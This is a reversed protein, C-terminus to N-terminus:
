GILERLIPVKKLPVIIAFSIFLTIVTILPVGIISNITNGNIAFGLYGRQLSELIMVHFLFIPLTNQSIVSLLKWLKSHSSKAPEPKTEKENVMKQSSPVQFTNMLLFLMVAALILTPSLYGQFFFMTTGGITAAIAYTGIATLAIGLSMFILLMSRRLRVTLLYAGLIFYGAYGTFEFVNRELYYTTLLSAVPLLSAGVFWVILLYKILNAGARVMVVRLIPTLLYLGFLLYLYWFHFYPGTLVDQIIISSTFAQHEVLFDWAFFAAGWFIFPLGIRAWRKKFFIRLPEDVKSPQLLLAGSLLLFLPVGLRGMSQYVDVTCWRVIEFQNMQQVTLDNSAHLLIVGIIAVTRIVAVPVSIGRGQNLMKGM